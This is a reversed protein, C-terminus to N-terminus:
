QYLNRLHGIDEFFGAIYRAPKFVLGHAFSVTDNLFKEPWTAKERNGLTLGMLTIALIVGILLFFLRRSGILKFM